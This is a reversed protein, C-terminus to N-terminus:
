KKRVDKRAELSEWRSYLASVERAATEHEARLPAVESGRAAYLTPDALKADLAALKEEATAILEMMGELEKKEAFTLPKLSADAAAAPPPSSQTRAPEAGSSKRDFPKAEARRQREGEAKLRKYSEYNGPYPVVRGEGEFALIGTAVQDLFARDHSVILACGPWGLLLEELSALTATDLDNTPEDLILLNAGDKLITALSVRAREGGSLSAALRRQAQADFGFHELYQRLSVTKEGLQANGGGTREAGEFGAVNDFVSQNEQVSARAQDVLAIRTNLGVNVTGASPSLEGMVARILSTKGAGNPGVIGIRDGAVLRLTLDEILKKGPVELSVRDLELITKGLRQAKPGVDSFTVAADRKLPDDAILAEARHIRAKQKTSRAQAGRRLWATERRVINQRNQEARAEHELLLAKQEVFATYGGQFERLKGYDLELVRDCVADLFYRDHTVVLVAGPFENAIHDELWGITDTDLHNTPEDLIALDPRAVLLRALAVRRHEGGSMSGVARDLDRLGVRACVDEVLHDVGWGGLREFAEALETHEALLAEDSPRKELELGVADYRAKTEVWASLGERVLERPTAAPDLVPAQDLVMMRAGRRREITGGDAPELGALVRMLTSKGAGNDGLLGVCEGRVITLALDEFLSRAGYAKALGRASLVPM